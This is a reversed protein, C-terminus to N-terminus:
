RPVEPLACAGGELVNYWQELAQSAFQYDDTETLDKDFIKNLATVIELISTIAEKRENKLYREMDLLLGLNINIVEVMTRKGPILDTGLKFLYAEVQQIDENTCHPWLNRTERAITGLRGAVRRLKQTEKLDPVEGLIYESIFTSLTLTAMVNIFAQSAM